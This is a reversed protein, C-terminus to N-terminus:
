LSATIGPSSANPLLQHVGGTALKQKVKELDFKLRRRSIRVSPIANTRALYYVKQKAADKNKQTSLDYGMLEAVALADGFPGVQTEPMIGNLLLERYPELKRDVTHEILRKFRDKLEDFFKDIESDSMM